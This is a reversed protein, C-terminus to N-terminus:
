KFNKPYPRPSKEIELEGAADGKADSITIVVEDKKGLLADLGKGLGSRKKVVM